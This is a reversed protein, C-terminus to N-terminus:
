EYRLHTVDGAAVAVVGSTATERVLLRGDDDLGVAVGRLPPQGPLDVRVALELTQLHQEVLPRLDAPHEAERWRGVLQVLERLYAALARDLLSAVEGDVSEGHEPVGEIVLSTATPVPLQQATMSVNLGAGVVVGTPTLETLIGCLKRGDVLVDNPWKLGGGTVGLSRVARVMAVGALLPVWGLRRPDLTARPLAAAPDRASSASGVLEPAGSPEHALFVSVALATGPPTSWARDLRGRGATQTDTALVTLDALATPPPGSDATAHEALRADRLESAVRAARSVLDSNTSASAERWILAVGVEDCVRASLPLHM